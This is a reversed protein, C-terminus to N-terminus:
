GRVTRGFYGHQGLRLTFMEVFLGVRGTSGQGDQRSVTVRREDVYRELLEFAQLFLAASLRRVGRLTWDDFVYRHQFIQFLVVLNFNGFHGMASPSVFVVAHSRVFINDVFRHRFSKFFREVLLVFLEIQDVRIQYRESIFIYFDYRRGTPRQLRRVYEVFFVRRTVGDGDTSDFTARWTQAENRVKRVAFGNVDCRHLGVSRQLLM